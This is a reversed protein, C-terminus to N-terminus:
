LELGALGILKCFDLSEVLNDKAVSVSRETGEILGLQGLNYCVAAKAFILTQYTQNDMNGDNMNNMQYIIKQASDAGLQKYCQNHPIRAYMDSLTRLTIIRSYIIYTHHEDLSLSNLYDTFRVSLSYALENKYRGNCNPCTTWRLRCQLWNDTNNNSHTVASKVICRTHAYGWDGRCSCDRLLRASPADQHDKNKCLYCSADKPLPTSTEQCIAGGSSFLYNDIYPKLIETGM